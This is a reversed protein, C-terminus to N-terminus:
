FHIEGQPSYFQDFPLVKTFVVEDNGIKDVKKELERTTRGSAVVRKRDLSLAVWMNEFPILPNVIKNKKNM